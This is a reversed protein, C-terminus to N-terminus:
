KFDQDSGPSLGQRASIYAFVRTVVNPWNHIKSINIWIYKNLQAYSWIPFTLQPFKGQM